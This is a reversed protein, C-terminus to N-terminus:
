VSFLVPQSMMVHVPLHISAFVLKLWNVSMVRVLLFFTLM